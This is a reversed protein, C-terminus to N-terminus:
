VRVGTLQRGEPHGRLPFNRKLHHPVAHLDIQSYDVKPYDSAFGGGFASPHLVDQTFAVLYRRTGARLRPAVKM